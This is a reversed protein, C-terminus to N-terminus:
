ANAADPQELAKVAEELKARLASHRDAGTAARLNAQTVRGAKAIGSLTTAHEDLFDQLTRRLAADVASVQQEEIEAVITSTENSILTRYEAAFAQAGRRLKIWRKWWGGQLDVVITKGNAVPAPILPM